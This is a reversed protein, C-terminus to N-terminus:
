LERRKKEERFLMLIDGKEIQPEGEFLLGCEKDKACESVDVKNAQLQIIKGKGLLEQGRLIDAQAGREAKGKTVRGGIIQRSGDQKFIGLIKIQGIEQRIIEPALFIAMQERVAQVLEYIIDFIFVKVGLRQASSIAIQTPKVRFGFIRAKASNALKIDAEGIQGVESAIIRLVVEEQPITQLTQSLAELSGFVDSKLIVNLVKQEPGIDLIQALERKKKELEGKKTAKTKAEEINEVASWEEGVPPATNLGIIRVPTSPGANEIPKGQFDEMAKISGFTSKTAIIDKTLLTGKQILLTATSGRKSDLYSEIVVGSASGSADSKLEEMEALLLIMELLNDIGIGTKASTPIMPIKGGLSEALVGADALQKKVKELIIGPKDAKNLAIVIPLELRTVLNIVEKTQPKIGEDAAVVLVAIDAIKAGRSRMASFAEHGPTDIFTIKRSSAFDDQNQRLIEGTKSRSGEDPQGRSSAPPLTVQYAGIHQTIGGSEKEAIKTKKIYDLISTKGHDVHGLVVVVPPRSQLNSQSINESM